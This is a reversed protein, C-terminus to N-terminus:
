HRNWSSEEEEETVGCNKLFRSRMGTAKYKNIIVESNRMTAANAVQLM